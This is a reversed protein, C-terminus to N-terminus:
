IIGALMKSANRIKDKNSSTRKIGELEFSVTLNSYVMEYFADQTMHRVIGKGKGRLVIDIKPKSM